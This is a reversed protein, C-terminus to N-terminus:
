AAVIASPGSNTAAATISTAPQSRLARTRRRESGPEAERPPERLAEDGAPLPGANPTPAASASAANVTHKARASARRPQEAAVDRDRRDDDDDGRQQDDEDEIRHAARQM